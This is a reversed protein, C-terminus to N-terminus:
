VIRRIEQESVQQVLKKIGVGSVPHVWDPAVDCLPMMVFAREHARPHPLILVPDDQCLDGYAIIDLDLTRAANAVSRQRGFDQEVGQLVHLLEYSGLSTLLRVVGNVYPPQGSPPVPASEYWSSVQIDEVGAVQKLVGAAEQCASLPSGQASPLNAGVAVLATVLKKEPKIKM